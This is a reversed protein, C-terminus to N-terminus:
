NLTPYGWSASALTGTNIYFNSSAGNSVVWMCGPAYGVEGNVPAEARIVFLLGGLFSMLELEAAHNHSSM